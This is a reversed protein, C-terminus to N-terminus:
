MNQRKEQVRAEWQGVAIHGVKVKWNAVGQQPGPCELLVCGRAEKCKQSGRPWEKLYQREQM